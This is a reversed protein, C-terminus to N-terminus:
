SRRKKEVTALIERLQEVQSSNFMILTHGDAYTTMDQDKPTKGPAIILSKLNAMLKLLLQYAKVEFEVRLYVPQATFTPYKVSLRVFVKDEEVRTSIDVIYDTEAVIRKNNTKAWSHTTIALTRVFAIGAPEVFGVPYSGSKLNNLLTFGDLKWFNTADQNLLLEFAENNQNTMIRGQMM